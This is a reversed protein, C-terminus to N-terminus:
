KIPDAPMLGQVTDEVMDVVENKIHEVVPVCSAASLAVSAAIGAVLITKGLKRRKELEKELYAVEAECTPCTGKCEGQYPCDTVTYAIDNNQAIQQRIQKLIKCKAKGNM